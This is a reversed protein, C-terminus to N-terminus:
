KLLPKENITEDEIYKKFPRPTMFTGSASGSLENGVYAKGVFNMITKGTSVAEIEIHVIAGIPIGKLFNTSLQVTPAIDYDGLGATLTGFAIDFMGVLSGGFMIGFGNKHFETAHFEMTLSKKDYDYDIIKGQLEHFISHEEMHDIADMRRKINAEFTERSMNVELLKQFYKLM